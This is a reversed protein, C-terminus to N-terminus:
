VTELQISSAADQLLRISSLVLADEIHHVEIPHGIGRLLTITLEGGLHERFEILGHLLSDTDERPQLLVESPIELVFGLRTLLALIRRWDTEHLLGSLYSYTCDLALGIAVAEGHRLSYNTQQELKHASWHGFDLPRSSTTEFPDGGMGIHNLHLEASRHVIHQMAAEDRQVLADAKNELYDFLSPDKLLAVKV